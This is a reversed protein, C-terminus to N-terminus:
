RRKPQPPAENAPDRASLFRVLVDNAEAPPSALRSRFPLKEGAELISKTPQATWTYIEQGTSNRIAFRLRPVEVVHNSTSVITGEVSLVSVGDHDDKSIKVDEFTLSRLNVPLGVAAFLSATQPLYRVVENRAGVLAINFGLLVLVLATWKSSRRRIKRKQQLRARRTVFSEADDADPAAFPPPPPLPENVDPPVLPPSEALPPADPDATPTHQFEILSDSAQSEEAPPSDLQPVTQPADGVPAAPEKGFDDEIEEERSVAAPPPPPAARRARPPSSGARAEAEAIVNEVFGSVNPPPKPGGAFWAAKCRACRVTRGAPGLSAPEVMYSTGCSPCVILM